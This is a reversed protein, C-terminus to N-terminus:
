RSGVKKSFESVRPNRLYLWYGISVLFVAKLLIVTYKSTPIYELLIRFYFRDFDWSGPSYFNVLTFLFIMEALLMPGSLLLYKSSVSVFGFALLALILVEFVFYGPLHHSQYVVRRFDRSIDEQELKRGLHQETELRSVKHIARGGFYYGFGNELSPNTYANTSVWLHKKNMRTVRTRQFSRFGERGPENSYYRHVPNAILFAAQKSSIPRLPYAGWESAGDHHDFRFILAGALIVLSAGLCVWFRKM